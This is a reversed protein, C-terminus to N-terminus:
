IEMGKQIFFFDRIHWHSKSMFIKNEMDFIVKEYKGYEDRLIAMSWKGGHRRGQEGQLSRIFLCM